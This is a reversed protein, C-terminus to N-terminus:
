GVAWNAAIISSGDLPDFAVSFGHGGLLIDTPQEESSAVEVAGCSQLAAMIKADAEVDAVLQKDGLENSTGLEQVSATRLTEQLAPRLPPHPLSAADPLRRGIVHM